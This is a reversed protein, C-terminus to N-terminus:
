LCSKLVCTNLWIVIPKLNRLYNLINSQTDFLYIGAFKLKLIKVLYHVMLKLLINLNTFRLMNHSLRRLAEHSKFEEARLRAEFRRQLRMYIFPGLSALIIGILVPILWWHSFTNSILPRIIGGVIFPIALVLTYVVAFIGARTIAINIDMVRFQIISYTIIAVSTTIFIGGLPYYVVGYNPLFDAFSGFWGISTGLVIYKIQNYKMPSVAKIKHLAKLLRTLSVISLYFLFCLFYSHLFGAKTQYGWYYKYVGAVLYDTFFLFFIFIFGILYIILRKERINLFLNTFHYFFIPIFIVGLYVIKTYLMAHTIDATSYM